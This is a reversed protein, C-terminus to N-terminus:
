LLTQQRVLRNRELVSKSYLYGFFADNKFFAKSIELTDTKRNQYGLRNRFRNSAMKLTFPAIIENIKELLDMSSEQDECGSALDADFQALVYRLDENRILDIKGASILSKYAGTVPEARYWSTGYSILFDLSDLHTDLYHYDSENQQEHIAILKSSSTMVKNQMILTEEIRLKSLKFDSQLAKLIKQEEISAKRNENWTNIQLALLIGIVVLIIEGLAYKFYRASKNESLM